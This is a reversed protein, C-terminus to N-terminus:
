PADGPMTDAKVARRRGRPEPRGRTSDEGTQQETEANVEAGFLVAISSIWLWLLLVVVGALSGYTKGYSGFNDVYVSFGVSGVLWILTALGAGLTVWRFKAGDRAPALRYLVAFAVTVAIVLGIWRVVQVVLRVGLPLGLANLVAPVVAVLAFAVTVFVIAGLTLLLALGKRKVFGRTEEEDYCFNIATVLNGVGNSASWLALLLAVVLGIGLSRSSTSTLQDVQDTLLQQASSPLAQAYSEVQAAAQAPDAVLGYLMVMAILAPFISLFAYFAVGAALLPVQDTKAETVARRTIQWWGRRPIETPKSAQAGPVSDASGATGSTRASTM